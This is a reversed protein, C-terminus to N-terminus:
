YTHFQSRMINRKQEFVILLEKVFCKAHLLSMWLSTKILLYMDNIEEKM